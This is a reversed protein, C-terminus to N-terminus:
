PMMVRIKLQDGRINLLIAGQLDNRYIMINRKQLKEIVEGHPHGFHNNRGSQIIAVRPNVLNLFEDSTSSRSGHHGVKLIDCNFVSDLDSRLGKYDEWLSIAGAEGKFGLDGTMLLTKGLYSLKILLSNENEDEEYGLNKIYEQKSKARPYLIDIYIGNEIDIRKGSILPLVRDLNLGTREKWEDQRAVTGEYMGIKRIMGEQCLSAIGWFHDSHLHTILALDIEKVGNRLLYPKLIKKGVDYGREGGGDILINKGEPTRIHLCDGQGVSVFTMDARGRDDWACIAVMAALCGLTCLAVVVGKKNGGKYSLWFGESSLFFILGYYICIFLFSPSVLDFSTKGPICMLENLVLLAKMIVQIGMALFGFVFDTIWIGRVPVMLSTGIGLPIIFGAMAITPVNIIFAALSFYNFLYAILPWMGIQIVFVPLLIRGINGNIHWRDRILPMLFALTFVATFSLQFGVHFLQYPNWVLMIIAAFSASCLFDYRKHIHTALIHLFIMTVARVISPSFSGLAAYFFLGVMTIMSRCRTRRKGLFRHIWLYVIGVHIGSVALIHATGNRQFTQYVDESLHSKDGFLMGLLLGCTDEDVYELFAERVRERITATLCQFRSGKGTIWLHSDYAEIIVRIGRIKLYMRYDFGGPNVAGSPLTVRGKIIVDKGVLTEPKGPLVLHSGNINCIEPMKVLLDREGCWGRRKISLQWGYSKEEVSSIRGKVTVVKGEEDELPDSIGDILMFYGAGLLFIISLIVMMRKELLFCGGALCAAFILFFLVIIQIPMNMINKLNSGTFIGIAFALLVLGIPRRM